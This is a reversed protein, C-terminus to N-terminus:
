HRNRVMEAQRDTETNRVGIDEGSEREEREREREM